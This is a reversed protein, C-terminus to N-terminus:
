QVGKLSLTETEALPLTYLMVIYLQPAKKHNKDFTFDDHIRFVRILKDRNKVYLCLPCILRRVYFFVYYFAIRM